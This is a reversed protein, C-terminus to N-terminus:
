WSGGGGGGFGGGSSFGGGFSSGGSGSSTSPAPKVYNLDTEIKRMGSYMGDTFLIPNFRGHRSGEYWDPEPLTLDKFKHAWEHGLGFVIAYAITQEFYKPNETALVRLRDIEATKVFERFGLIEAFKKAGFPAKKPMYYGFFLFGAALLLLPVSLSFDGIAFSVGFAILGGIGILIGLIILVIGLGRSGWVYYGSAKAYDKMESFAQRMTKYFSNRLSNIEIEDGSAFLGNFFIKEYQRATDPLPQKKILTYTSSDDIATERINLHGKHAWYYILAILDKQHLKGDWLMGAEAPTMDEPPKFRVMMTHEEDKGFFYWLMALVGLGLFSFIFFPNNIIILKITTWFSSGTYAKPYTMTLMVGEEPLLHEDIICSINNESKDIRGISRGTTTKVLVNVKATDIREPFHVRFSGRRIPEELPYIVPFNIQYQGDKTTQIGNIKYSYNFPQPWIESEPDKLQFHVVDGVEEMEYTRSSLTNIDDIIPRYHSALFGYNPLQYDSKKYREQIYPSFQDNSSRYIFNTELGHNVAMSGDKQLHLYTKFYDVIYHQTYVEMPVATFDFVNANTTFHVEYDEGHLLPHTIAGTIRHKAKEVNYQIFNAEDQLHRTLHISQESLVANDPLNIEFSSQRVPEDSAINLIEAVFEAETGKEIATGWVKYSLTFTVKGAFSQGKSKITIHDGGRNRSVVLSVDQMPNTEVLLDEEAIMGYQNGGSPLQRPKMIFQRLFSTTPRLFDVEYTELVDISADDNVTIKSTHDDVIFHEAYAEVPIETSQFYNKSFRIALSLGEHPRLTKTTQGIIQKNGITYTVNKTTSGSRGTFGVVDEADLDIGKPFNIKFNVEKISTRWEHGVINWSFEQQNTFQNLAGWVTYTIEYRQNGRVKRSPSGIRIKIYNDEKSVRYPHDVVHVDKLLTEYYGQKTTSRIAREGDVDRLRYRYPISRFIGHREESFRIDIIERVQFSGNENLTIEVDYNKIKFAEAQAALSSLIFFCILTIKKLM